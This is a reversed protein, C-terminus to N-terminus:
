GVLPSLSISSQSKIGLEFKNHRALQAAFLASGLLADAAPGTEAAVDVPNAVGSL